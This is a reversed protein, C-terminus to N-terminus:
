SADVEPSIIRRHCECDPHSCWTTTFHGARAARLIGASLERTHGCEMAVEVADSEASHESM